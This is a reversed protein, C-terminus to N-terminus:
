GYKAQKGSSASRVSSTKLLREFQLIKAPEEAVTSRVTDELLTYAGAGITVTQRPAESFGGNVQQVFLPKPGNAGITM